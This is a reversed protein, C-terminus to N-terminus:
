ESLPLETINKNVEDLQYLASKDSAILYSGMFTNTGTAPDPGYVNIHVCPKGEAMVVGSILYYKYANDGAEPLGLVEPGLSAMYDLAEFANMGEVPLYEISGEMPGVTVTCSEEDWSVQVSLLWEEHVPERVLHISGTPTPLEPLEEQESLTDDVYLMDHEEVLLRIYDASLVDTGTLKGYRYIWTDMPPEPPLSQEPEASEEPPQSPSPSPSEEPEKTEKGEEKESEPVVMEQKYRIETGPAVYLGPLVEEGVTYTPPLIIVTPDPMKMAGILRNGGVYGGAAILAVVVLLLLVRILIGGIKRGLTKKKGEAEDM